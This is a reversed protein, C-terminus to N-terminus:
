AAITEKRAVKKANVAAIADSADWAGVIFNTIIAYARAKHTFHGEFDPSPLSSLNFGKGDKDVGVIYYLAQGGTVPSIDYRKGTPDINNKIGYDRNLITETM